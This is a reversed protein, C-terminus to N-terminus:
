AEKAHKASKWGGKKAVWKAVDIQGVDDKDPHLSLYKAKQAARRTSVNNCQELKSRNPNTPDSTYSVSLAAWAAPQQATALKSIQVAHSKQTGAGYHVM